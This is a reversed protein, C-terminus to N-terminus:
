GVGQKVRVLRRETGMVGQGGQEGQEELGGGVVRLRRKRMFVYMGVLVLGYVVLVVVVVVVEVATSVHKTCDAEM